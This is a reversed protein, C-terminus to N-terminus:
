GERKSIKWFCKKSEEFVTKADWQTLSRCISASDLVSAKDDKIETIVIFHGNDTFHGEDMTTVYVEGDGLSNKFKEYSGIYLEKCDVSVTIPFNRVLSWKTGSNDEYMNNEEAWKLVEELSVVNKEHVYNLAMTLSIPGCGSSKVNATGYPIKEFKDNNQSIYVGKSAKIIENNIIGMYAHDLQNMKGKDACEMILTENDKKVLSVVGNNKIPMFVNWFLQYLEEKTASRADHETMISIYTLVDEENYYHEDLAYQRNDETSLDNIVRRLISKFETEEVQQAAVGSKQVPKNICPGVFVVISILVIFIIMLVIMRQQFTKIENQVNYPEEKPGNSKNDFKLIKKLWKPTKFEKKHPKDQVDEQVM